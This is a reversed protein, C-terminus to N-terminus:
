PAREYTIALFKDAETYFVSEFLVQKSGLSADRYFGLPLGAENYGIAGVENNRSYNRTLFMWLPHTLLYSPKNDYAVPERQGSSNWNSDILNGNRDYTFFDAGWYFSTGGQHTFKDLFTDKKIRGWEDYSFESTKEHSDFSQSNGNNYHFDEWLSDKFIRNGEYWYWHRGTKESTNLTEDMVTDYMEYSHGVLRRGATYDFRIIHRGPAVISDPDGERNYFITFTLPPYGVLAPKFTKIRYHVNGHGHGPLYDLYKHCSLLQLSFILLSVLLFIKM